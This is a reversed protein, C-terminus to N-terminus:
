KVMEQVKDLMNQLNGYDQATQILQANKVNNIQYIQGQAVLPSYRINDLLTKIQFKKFGNSRLISMELLAFFLLIGKTYIQVIVLSSDTSASIKDGFTLTDPIIVWIQYIGLKQFFKIDPYDILIYQCIITLLMEVLIYPVLITLTKYFANASEARNLFYRSDYILLMAFIFYGFSLVSTSFISIFLAFSIVFVEGYAFVSNQANM